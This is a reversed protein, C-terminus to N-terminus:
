GTPLLSSGGDIQREVTWLEGCGRVLLKNGYLIERYVDLNKTEQWDRGRPGIQM